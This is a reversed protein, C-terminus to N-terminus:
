CAILGDCGSNVYVKAIKSIVSIDSDAPIENFICDTPVNEKKLIDLVIQLVGANTVGLDSLILPRQCGLFQLEYGINELANEGACIKVSNIFEFYNEM